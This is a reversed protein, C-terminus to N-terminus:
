HVEFHWTTKVEVPQGLVLFPRIEIKRFSAAAAKQLTPPGEIGIASTVHGDKGILLEVKGSGHESGRYDINPERVIYDSLEASPVEIRDGVVVADATPFFDADKIDPIAELVALRINLYPKGAHTIKVDSAVYRGEFVSLKNYTTEDAGHGQTYRVAPVDPGFCYKPFGYPLIADTRRAAVCPLKTTGVSWELKELKSNGPLVSSRYLPEIVAERVQMEELGPWKQSGSLYLGRETAFATQTFNDSEYIQKYKKPNAFFEEYSGSSDNDGDSDFHDYALKIHWTQAGTTDLGNDQALLKLLLTPDKPLSPQGPSSAGSQGYSYTALRLCFFSFTLTCLM